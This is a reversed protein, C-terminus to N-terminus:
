SDIKLSEEKEEEGGGRRKGKEKERGRGKEEKRKKKKKPLHYFWIPSRWLQFVFHYCGGCFCGWKPCAVYLNEIHTIYFLSKSLDQFSPTELPFVSLGKVVLMNGPAVMIFPPLCGPTSAAAHRFKILYRVITQLGQGAQLENRASVNWSMILTTRIHDKSKLEKGTVCPFLCLYVESPLLSFGYTPSELCKHM